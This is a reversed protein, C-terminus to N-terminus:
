IDLEANYTKMFKQRIFSKYYEEHVSDELAVFLLKMQKKVSYTLMIYQNCIMTIAFMAQHDNNTEAFSYLPNLTEQLWVPLFENKLDPHYKSAFNNLMNNMSQQFQSM